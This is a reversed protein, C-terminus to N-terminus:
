LRQAARYEAPSRGHQRKFARSFAFESAYGVGHAVAAVSDASDRLRRAALEMRWRALYALPPEGVLASFRRALTARSVGVQAALEEVTWPRAPSEHLLAMAKAIEPDRLAMLWSAGDEARHETWVRLAQVFLVDVLRDTVTQTGPRDEGIEATLMRLTDALERGAASQDAPLHVLPPLLRMLPHAPYADYRYSGCVIRTECGDGPLRIVRQGPSPAIREFPLLPVEPSSCLAHGSGMPLLTFDGAALQVPREGPLRIWCSGRVVAHFAAKPMDDLQIGWPAAARLQATVAGGVKTAALVDTLVDM